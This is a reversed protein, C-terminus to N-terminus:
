KLKDAIRKLNQNISDLYKVQDQTAKAQTRAPDIVPNDACSFLFITLLIYFVKKM